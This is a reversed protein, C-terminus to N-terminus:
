VEKMLARFFQRIAKKQRPSLQALSFAELLEQRALGFASPKWNVPLGRIPLGSLPLKVKKPM